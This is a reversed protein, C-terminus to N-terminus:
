SPASANYEAGGGKLIEPDAVARSRTREGRPLLLQKVIIITKRKLQLYHTYQCKSLLLLREHERCEICFGLLPNRQHNHRVKLGYIRIAVLISSTSLCIVLPFLTSQRFKFMAMACVLLYWWLLLMRTKLVVAALYRSRAYCYADHKVPWLGLSDGSSVPPFNAVPTLM